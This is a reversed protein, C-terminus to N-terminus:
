PTPVRRKQRRGPAISLRQRDVGASRRPHRPASRCVLAGGGGRRDQDALRRRWCCVAPLKAHVVSATAGPNREIMIGAPNVADMQELGKTNRKMRPRILFPCATAAFIACDLHCPPRLHHADGCVDPRPCVGHVARPARRVGLVAEAQGRGSTEQLRRHPLRTGSDALTEVFWPIPFGRHDVPLHQMHKPLWPLDARLENMLESEMEVFLEKATSALQQFARRLRDGSAGSNILTAFTTAARYADARAAIRNLPDPPQKSPEGVLREILRALKAIGKYPDLAGGLEYTEALENAERAANTRRQEQTRFLEEIQSQMFDDLTGKAMIM